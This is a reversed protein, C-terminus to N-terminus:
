EADALHCDSDARHRVLRLEPFPQSCSGNFRIGQQHDLGSKPRRKRFLAVVSEFCNLVHIPM